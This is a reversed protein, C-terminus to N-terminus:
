KILNKALASRKCFKLRIRKKEEPEKEWISNLKCYNKWEEM